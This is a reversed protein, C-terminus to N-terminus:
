HDGRYTCNECKVVPHVVRFNCSDKTVSVNQTLAQNEGCLIRYIHVVISCYKLEVGQPGLAGLGKFLDKTGWLRITPELFGTGKGFNWIAGISLNRIDEPDL